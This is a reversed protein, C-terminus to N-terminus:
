AAEDRAFAYRRRLERRSLFVLTRDRRLTDARLAAANRAAVIMSILINEGFWHMQQRFSWSSAAAIREFGFRSVFRVLQASREAPELSLKACIAVVDDLDRRGDLFGALERLSFEFAQNVRRAWALTPGKGAFCPFQENWIHLNAIRDGPRICTGDSLVYNESGAVFQVRFLCESSNTYEIVGHRLRLRDDLAAVMAELWPFQGVDGSHLHKIGTEM